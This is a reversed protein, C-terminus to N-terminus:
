TKLDAKKRNQDAAITDYRAIADDYAHSEPGPRALYPFRALKIQEVTALAIEERITRAQYFGWMDIKEAQAAQMAQVANDDKVNCTGMFTALIAVSVAM